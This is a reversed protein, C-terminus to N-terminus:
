RTIFSSFSRTKVTAKVTARVRDKAARDDLKTVAEFPIPYMECCSDIGEGWRFVFAIGKTWYWWTERHLGNEVVLETEEPLGYDFKITEQDTRCDCKCSLSLAALGIVLSFLLIKKM